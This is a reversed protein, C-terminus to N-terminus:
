RPRRGYRTASGRRGSVPRRMRRGLGAVSEVFRVRFAVDSRPLEVLRRYTDTAVEFVRCAEEWTQTRGADTRYIERWPPAAFVTKAYRFRAAALDMYAPVPLGLMRLYAAPGPVGRDFFV